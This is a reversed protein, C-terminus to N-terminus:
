TRSTNTVDVSGILIDPVTLKSLMSSFQVCGFVLLQPVEHLDFRLAGFFVPSSQQCDVGVVTARLLCFCVFPLADTIKIDVLM